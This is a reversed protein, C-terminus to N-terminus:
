QHSSLRAIGVDKVGSLSMLTDSYGLSVAIFGFSHKNQLRQMFAQAVQVLMLHCYTQIKFRSIWNMFWSASASLQQLVQKSCRQLAM